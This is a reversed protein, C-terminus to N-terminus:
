FLTTFRGAFLQVDGIEKSYNFNSINQFDLSFSTSETLGLRYYIEFVREDAYNGQGIGAGDRDFFSSYGKIHAKRHNGTLRGIEFATGIQDKNRSWLDGSFNFGLMYSEDMDQYHRVDRDDDQKGYKGFVNITDSLAQTISIGFGNKNLTDANGATNIENNVGDNKTVLDGNDDFAAYEGRNSFAYIQYVGELEGFKPTLTLGAIISHKDNINDLQSDSSFFGLDLGVLDNAVGARVGYTYGHGQLDQVYDFAGNNAIAQNLFQITQDSNEDGVDFFDNVGFKGIDYTFNYEKSLPITREYFAKAVYVENHNDTDEMIDNNVMAGGQLPADVGQGNAFQLDFNLSENENFKKVVSITASYSAAGDKHDYPQLEERTRNSNDSNRLDGIKLDLNSSQYIATAQGSIEIGKFADIVKQVDEDIDITVPKAEAEAGLFFLSCAVTPLIRRKKMIKTFLPNTLSSLCWYISGTKLFVLGCYNIIIILTLYIKIIIIM